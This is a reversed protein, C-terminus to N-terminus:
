ASGNLSTKVAFEVAYRSAIGTADFAACVKQDCPECITESAKIIAAIPASLPMVSMFARTGYAIARLPNNKRGSATKLSLRTGARAIQNWAVQAHRSANDPVK